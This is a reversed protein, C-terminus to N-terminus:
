GGITANHNRIDRQWFSLISWTIALAESEAGTVFWSRGLSASATLAWSHGQLLDNLGGEIPLWSTLLGPVANRWFLHLPLEGLSWEGLFLVQSFEVGRVVVRARIWHDGRFEALM